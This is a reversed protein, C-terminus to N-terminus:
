GMIGVATQYVSNTPVSSDETVVVPADIATRGSHNDIDTNKGTIGVHTQHVFNTPAISDVTVVALADIAIAGFYKDM